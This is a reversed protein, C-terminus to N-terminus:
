EDVGRGPLSMRPPPTAPLRRPSEDGRGEKQGAHQRQSARQASDREAGSRGGAVRETSSLHPGPPPALPVEVGAGVGMGMGVAEAACILLSGASPSGLTSQGTPQQPMKPHQKM